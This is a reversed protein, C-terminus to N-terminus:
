MGPFSGQKLSLADRVAAHFWIDPPFEGYTGRYRHRAAYPQHGRGVAERVFRELRERKKEDSDGGARVEILDRAKVRPATPPPLEAGCIQCRGGRGWARCARCQVAPPLDTPIIVAEEGLGWIRPDEPHGIRPDRSTGRLDLVTCRQKGEFPRGGRGVAQLYLPISGCARALIVSSVRPVDIGQRLIQACVAVTLSGDGLAKIVWARQREPTDDTILAASVGIAQFSEVVGAAHGKNAAFVIASEGPTQWQWADVPQAALEQQPEDPALVKWPVLYGAEVLERASSVQYLADAWRGLGAGTSTAPTADFLLLEAGRDLYFDAIASWERGAIWRAEDFAVRRAEPLGEGRALMRSALQTTLVQAGEVRARLQTCLDTGPAIVVQPHLDGMITTKGAGTPAQVVVSPRSLTPLTDEVWQVAKFQYPRLIV